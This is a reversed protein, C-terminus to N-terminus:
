DFRIRDSEHAKSKQISPTKSLTRSANLGPSVIFVQDLLSVSLPSRMAIQWQSRDPTLECTEVTGYVLPTSVIGKERMSVVLDGPHVPYQSPIHTIRLLETGTGQLVGAAGWNLGDQTRRALRITDRYDIDQVLQVVSTHQGTDRSRGLITNASLVTKGPVLDHDTGADILIASSLSAVVASDPLVGNPLGRDITHQHNLLAMAAQGLIRAQLLKPRVLPPTPLLEAWAGTQQIPGKQSLTLMQSQLYQHKEQMEALQNKLVQVETGSDYANRITQAIKMGHRSIRGTLQQGPKVLSRLTDRLPDEVRSPVVTLGTALLLMAVLATWRPPFEREYTM